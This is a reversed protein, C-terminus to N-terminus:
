PARSSAPRLEELGRPEQHGRPRQRHVLLRRRQEVRPAASSPPQRPAKARDFPIRRRQLPRARKASASPRFSPLTACGSRAASVPLAAEGGIKSTSTASPRSSLRARSLSWAAYGLANDDHWPKVMADMGYADCTDEVTVSHIAPDLGAIVVSPSHYSAFSRQGSAPWALAGSSEIVIAAAADSPRAGGPLAMAEDVKRLAALQARRADTDSLLALTERALIEPASDADLFEPVANEGLVLNALVISDVALFRKLYRAVPDVRYAVVMPVGSLALELTVTGSAALAAHARRFAAFKEARAQWSGRSRSWTARM